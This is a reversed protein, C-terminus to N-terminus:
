FKASELVLERCWSLLLVGGLATALWMTPRRWSAVVTRRRVIAAAAYIGLLPMLPLHYRSHAFVLTHIGCVFVIALLLFLHVRWSTPATVLAGTLGALAVFVYSGLILVAAVLVGARSLGGWYGADLGAVIERELQWFHFFKALDRRLTEFPHAVIYHVASKMALKDLQGQTIGKAEEPFQKRVLKYWARDDNIGIAAWPRDIPTHEYNGMMFNRGGMVDVATFTRHLRTNRIAWPALVASFAVIAIIAHGLRVSVRRHPGAFVMFALLPAPFLWLISRTLAGLGLIIGFGMIWRWSGTALYREMALCALCLLLTFTTETLLLGTTAILSPYFSCIAAAVVATTEDYMRRGLLFVIYATLTGLVAQLVRIATFRHEGLLTYVAAVMAPYLPPRISTPTGPEFAFQGYQVINVALTDYDREDWVYLAQGHLWLALLLRLALGVTLVTLLAPPMWRAKLDSFAILEQENALTRAPFQGQSDDKRAAPPPSPSATQIESVLVTAKLVAL